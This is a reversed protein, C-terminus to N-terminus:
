PSIDYALAIKGIKVSPLHLVIDGKGLFFRTKENVPAPKENNFISLTLSLIFKVPEKCKILFVSFKKYLFCLAALTDEEEKETFIFFNRFNFFGWDDASDFPIFCLIKQITGCTPPLLVKIHSLLIPGILQRTGYIGLLRVLTKLFPTSFEQIVKIRCTLFSSKKFRGKGAEFPSCSSWKGNPKNWLKRSHDALCSSPNNPRYEVPSLSLTKRGSV